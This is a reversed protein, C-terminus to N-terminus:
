TSRQTVPQAIGDVLMEALLEAFRELSLGFRIEPRGILGAFQLFGTFVNAREATEAETWTGGHAENLLHALFQQRMEASRQMLESGNDQLDQLAFALEADGNMLRSVLPMKQSLVLSAVTMEKLRERAPRSEDLFHLMEAMYERKELAVAGALLMAKNEFHTYITGKAVHARRAVEDVSTKRYGQEIFLETAAELIRRQKKGKADLPERPGALETLQREIEAM